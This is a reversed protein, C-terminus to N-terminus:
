GWAGGLNEINCAQKEAHLMLFSAQHMSGLCQSGFFSSSASGCLSLFFNITQHRCVAYHYGLVLLILWVMVM